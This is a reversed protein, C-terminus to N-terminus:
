VDIREVDFTDDMVREVFSYVNPPFASEATREKAAIGKGVIRLFIFRVQHIVDVSNARLSRFFVLQSEMIPAGREDSLTM